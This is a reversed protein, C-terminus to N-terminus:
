SVLYPLPHNLPYLYISLHCIGTLEVFRSSIVPLVCLQQSLGIHVFERFTQTGLIFGEGVLSEKVAFINHFSRTRYERCLNSLSVDM